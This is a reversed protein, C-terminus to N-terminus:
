GVAEVVPEPTTETETTAASESVRYSAIMSQYVLDTLGYGSGKALSKSQETDLMEQFFKEGNDGHMAPNEPVTARMAKMVQNMFVSVFDESVQRVKAELQKQDTVGQGKQISRAQEAIKEERNKGMAAGMAGLNSGFGKDIADLM